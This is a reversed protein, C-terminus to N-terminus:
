HLNTYRANLVGAPLWTNDSKKVVGSKTAVNYKLAAAILTLSGPPIPITFDLTQAPVEVDNYPITINHTISGYANGTKLLCGAVTVILNVSITDAPADIQLAPTFAALSVTIVNASQQTVSMAARFREVFTVGSTFQFANIYAAADTAPLENVDSIGLWKAIAGSFRSQMSRDTPLPMVPLLGSRLAKGARSAIGFNVGRIKTSPTQKIHTRKIRTYSVGM